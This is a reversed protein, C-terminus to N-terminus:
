RSPQKLQEVFATHEASALGNQLEALVGALDGDLLKTVALRLGPFVQSNMIGDADEQIPVYEGESLRFWDFREDYTQWVAYEQVGNRRYAKMKDALDITASTAAIEIVLEPAGEIYDNVGITSHGGVSPEIRLLADPQVENDFDLRVTANDSWDVGPTAACFTTLWGLILGHPKGHGTHHVPSAVYVVGEILEAKKDEPYATYRREFEPRTLCDGTELPPIQALRHKRRASKEIPPVIELTQM